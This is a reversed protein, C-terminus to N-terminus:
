WIQLEEMGAAFMLPPIPQNMMHLHTIKKMTHLAPDSEICYTFENTWPLKPVGFIESAVKPSIWRDYAIPNVTVRWLKSLELCPAHIPDVFIIGDPRDTISHVQRRPGSLRGGPTHKLENYMSNCEAETFGPINERIQKMKRVFEYRYVQHDKTLSPLEHSRQWLFQAIADITFHTRSSLDPYTKISTWHKSFAKISNQNTPGWDSLAWGRLRCWRSFAELFSVDGEYTVHYGIFRKLRALERACIVKSTREANDDITDRLAQTTARLRIIDRATLHAFIQLKLECPLEPLTAKVPSM